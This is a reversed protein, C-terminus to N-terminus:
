GFLSGFFARIRAWFGIQPEGIAQGVLPSPEPASIEGTSPIEGMEEPESEEVVPETEVLINEPAAKGIVFNGVGTAQATYYVYRGDKKLFTTETEQGEYFLRLDGLSIHKQQLEQEPIKLSMTIMGIKEPQDSSITFKSYFEDQFPISNDIEVQMQGNKITELVEFTYQQFGPIDRVGNTLTTGGEVYAINQVASGTIISPDAFSILGIFFFLFVAALSMWLAQDQLKHNIRPDKKRKKM